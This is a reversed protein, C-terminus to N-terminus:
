LQTNGAVEDAADTIKEAPAIIIWIGLAADRHMKVVPLTKRALDLVGADRSTMRTKGTILIAQRHASVQKRVWARDFALGEMGSLKEIAAADAPMLATPLAVGRAAALKRVEVLHKKHDAVLIAGM